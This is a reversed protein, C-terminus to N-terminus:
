DRSTQNLNEKEYGVRRGKSKQMHPNCDYCSTLARAQWESVWTLTLDGQISQNKVENPTTNEQKQVQRSLRKCAQYDRIPDWVNRIKELQTSSIKVNRFINKLKKGPM